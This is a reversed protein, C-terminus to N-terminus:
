GSCRTFGKNSPLAFAGWIRFNEDSALLPTIDGLITVDLDLFLARPGAIEGMEKSFLKVYHYGLDLYERPITTSDIGGDLEEPANTMCLFKHPGLYHREVM